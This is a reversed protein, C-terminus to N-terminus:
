VVSKRDGVCLTGDETVERGQGLQSLEALRDIDVTLLNEALVVQLLERRQRQRDPVHVVAGERDPGLPELLSRLVATPPGLDADLGHLWRCPLAESRIQRARPTNPW